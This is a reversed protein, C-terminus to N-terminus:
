DQLQVRLKVAGAPPVIVTMGTVDVRLEGPAERFRSHPLISDAILARAELIEGSLALTCVQEEEPDPNLLTVTMVGERLTAM